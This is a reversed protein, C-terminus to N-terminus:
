KAELVLIYLQIAADSVAWWERGVMEGDDRATLVVSGNGNPVVLGEGVAVESTLGLYANNASSNVVVVELRDPNNPLIRTPTTSVDAVWDRAKTEVGVLREVVEALAGM